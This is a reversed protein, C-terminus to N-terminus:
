VRHDTTELDEEDSTNSFKQDEHSEDMSDTDSELMNELQLSVMETEGSDEMHETLHQNEEEGDIHSAFGKTQPGFVKKWLLALIIGM